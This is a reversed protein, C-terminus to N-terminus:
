PPGVWKLIAWVHKRHPPQNVGLCKMFVICMTKIITNTMIIINQKSNNGEYIYNYIFIYIYMNTRDVHM